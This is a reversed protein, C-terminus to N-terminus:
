ICSGSLQVLYLLSVSSKEGIELSAIPFPWVVISVKLNAANIVSDKPPNLQTKSRQNWAGRGEEEDEETRQYVSRTEMVLDCDVFMLRTSFQLLM